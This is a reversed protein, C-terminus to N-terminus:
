SFWLRSLPNYIVKPDRPVVVVGCPQPNLGGTSIHHQKVIHYSFDMLCWGMLEDPQLHFSPIEGPHLDKNMPWPEAIHARLRAGPTQKANAGLAQRVCLCGPEIVKLPLLTHIYTHIYTHTHTHTHPSVFPNNGSVILERANNFLM